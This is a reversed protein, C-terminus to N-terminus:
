VIDGFLGKHVVALYLIAKCMNYEIDDRCLVPKLKLCDVRVDCLM